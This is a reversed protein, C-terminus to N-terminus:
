WRGDAHSHHKRILGSWGAKLKGQHYWNFLLLQYFLGSGKLFTTRM